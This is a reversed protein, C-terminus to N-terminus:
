SLFISTWFLILMLQGITQWPHVMPRMLFPVPDKQDINQPDYAM